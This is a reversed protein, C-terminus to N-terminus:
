DMTTTKTAHLSFRGVEQREKWKVVLSLGAMTQDDNDDLM